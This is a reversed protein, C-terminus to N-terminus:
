SKRAESAQYEKLTEYLKLNDEPFSVSIRLHTENMLRVAISNTKLYNFIKEADPVELYVFNTCTPFVKACPLVAPLEKIMSQAMKALEPGRNIRDANDLVIKGLLQSLSNVNYPSRAVNLARILSEHGVAFGLRLGAAGYAKSLTRLVILNPERDAIDLISQDWFDMYAEDIICLADTNRVFDLVEDRPFGQGTPNCPNSLIVARCGSDRVFGSLERLSYSDKKQLTCVRVECLQAYFAYMSFEPSTVAISEGKDLLSNIIVSILEDSGNGAVVHAPDVGYVRAFSAILESAGPDPYRDLTNEKLQEEFQRIVFDPLPYPSENADMRIAYSGKVPEYPVKGQMKRSLYNKM